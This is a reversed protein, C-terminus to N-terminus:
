VEKFYVRTGGVLTAPSGGSPETSLCYLYLSGTSIDTIDGANALGYNTKKNIPIKKSLTKVVIMYSNTQGTAVDFDEVVQPPVSFSKDYLIKFRNPVNDMNYPSTTILTIVSNDLVNAVTPAVGNAQKDWVLLIRYAVAGLELNNTRVELKFQVSTARVLDGERTNRTDGQAMGNLLIVTAPPAANSLMTTNILVDKFKLEEELKMNLIRKELYEIKKNQAQDVKKTAMPLKKHKFQKTKNYMQGMPM